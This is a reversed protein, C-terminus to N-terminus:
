PTTLGRRAAELAAEARSSINLKSYISKVFSMVTSDAVGLLLATEHVRLGRGICRLVESERPTLSVAAAASSVPAAERRFHELIRTAMRPSLPPQGQSWLRLQLVLMDDTQEKLLYGQAGAALAAFLHEDDDHVTIVVVSIGAHQQRIHTILDLGSGDPLGLDVLALTWADRALLARAQQLSGAIAAQANPLADQLLDCMRVAIHAQDEVILVRPNM